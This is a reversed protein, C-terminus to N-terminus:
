RSRILYNTGLFEVEAYDQKAEDAAAKYNLTLHNYPWEGREMEKPM